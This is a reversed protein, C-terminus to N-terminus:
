YEEAERRTIFFHVGNSCEVRIDDDYDDPYYFEGEKYEGERSSIGSGKLVKVYEARCKRSILSSTRRANAPILLKIVGTNVRKWGIFDGEEPCIQFYPLNAGRKIKYGNVIM